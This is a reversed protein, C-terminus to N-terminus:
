IWIYLFKKFILATVTTFHFSIAPFVSECLFDFMWRDRMFCINEDCDIFSNNLTVFLNKLLCKNKSHMFGKYHQM